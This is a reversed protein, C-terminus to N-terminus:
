KIATYRNLDVALDGVQLAGEYEAARAVLADWKEAQLVLDHPNYPSSAFDSAGAELAAALGTRVQGESTVIIAAEPLSDRVAAVSRTGAEGVRDLAVVVVSPQFPLNTSLRDAAGVCMVQHGRRQAAYALVYSSVPDIDIIALHM